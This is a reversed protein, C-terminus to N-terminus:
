WRGYEKNRPPPAAKQISWTVPRKVETAYLGGGQGGPGTLDPYSIKSPRPLHPKGKGGEEIVEGVLPLCPVKLCHNLCYYRSLSRAPGDDPTLTGVDDLPSEAGQHDPGRLLGGGGGQRYIPGSGDM